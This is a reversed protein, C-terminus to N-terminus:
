PNGRVSEVGAKGKASPKATPKAKKPPNVLPKGTPSQSAKPFKPGPVLQGTPGIKMVGAEVLGRVGEDSMTGIGANPRIAGAEVNGPATVPPVGGIGEENGPPPIPAGGMGELGELEDFNELLVKGFPTKLFEEFTRVPNEKLNRLISEDIRKIEEPDTALVRAIKLDKIASAQQAPNGKAKNFMDFVGTVVKFKKDAQDANMKSRLYKLYGDRYKQKSLNEWYTLELRRHQVPTMALFDISDTFETGYEAATDVINKWINEKSTASITPNNLQGFLKGLVFQGWKSKNEPKTTDVNVWSEFGKAEEDDIGWTAALAEKNALLKTREAPQLGFFTKLFLENRKYGQEGAKVTDALRRRTEAQGLREEQAQQRAANLPANQAQNLDGAYRTNNAYDTQANQNEIQIQQAGREYNNVERGYRDIAGKEGGQIGQAMIAPTNENIYGPDGGMLTALASFIGGLQGGSNRSGQVGAESIIPAPGPNRMARPPDPTYPVPVQYERGGIVVTTTQAPLPVGVGTPDTSLRASSDYRPPTLPPLGSIPLQSEDYYAEDMMPDDLIPGASPAIVMPDISPARVPPPGIPYASPKATYVSQKRNGASRLAKLMRQRYSPLASTPQGTGTGMSNSQGYTRAM